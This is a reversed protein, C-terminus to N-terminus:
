RSAMGFEHRGGQTILNAGPLSTQVKCGRQHQFKNQQSFVAVRLAM